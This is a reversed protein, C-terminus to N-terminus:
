EINREPINDRVCFEVSRNMYSSCNAFRVLLLLDFFRQLSSACNSVTYTNSMSLRTLCEGFQAADLDALAFDMVSKVIGAGFIFRKRVFRELFVSALQHLQASESSSSKLLAFSLWIMGPTVIENGNSSQNVLVNLIRSLDIRPTRPVSRAWASQEGIRNEATTNQFLIRVFPILQSSSLLTSEPYRNISAVSLFASLFFPSLLFSPTAAMPRCYRVLDKENLQFETAKGLHFLITDQAEQLEQSSYQEIIDHGNRNAESDASIRAYLHKQFYCSFGHIAMLFFFASDCVRFIQYALPPLATPEMLDLNDCIKNLFRTKEDQSLHIERFMMTISTLINNHWRMTCIQNICQERYELGSMPIGNVILHVHENLLKILEPFLSM